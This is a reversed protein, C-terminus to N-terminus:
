GLVEAVVADVAADVAGRPKAADVVRWTPTAAALALFGDRVREVFADDAVEFRDQGAGGRSRAVAPACDLLVTLDAVLGGTAAADVRRV